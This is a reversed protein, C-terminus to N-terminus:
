NVTMTWLATSSTINGSRQTTFMLQRHRHEDKDYTFGANKAGMRAATLTFADSDIIITEGAKAYSQGPLVVDAGQLGLLEDVQAETLNSPAFMLQLWLDSVIIDAVGLDAAEIQKVTLMPEVEFGNMAGVADFPASRAGITMTYIDTIVKTDDYSTDSFAVTAITKLYDSDTPSTAAAGICSIEMDGFPTKTPGLFLKPYKSVGGRHWTYTKGEAVSHIVVAGKFISKGIDAPGHPFYKGVDATTRFEGVPTFTIKVVLSKHREDRRGHASEVFFSQRDYNVQIDKQVYIFHGNEQIVAPGTIISPLVIASM